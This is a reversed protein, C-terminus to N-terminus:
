GPGGPESARSLAARMAAKDRTLAVAAPPNHALGLREAALAAAVVGQDDVAVIGDLPARAALDVIADAAREPDTLSVVVSRDGMSSAMAQRRDSAVVVQAGLASAAAVFDAARYTTTPLLLLLRPM